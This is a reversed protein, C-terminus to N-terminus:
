QYGPHIGIRQFLWSKQNLTSPNGGIFDPDVWEVGLEVGRAGHEMSSSGIRMGFDLIAVGV